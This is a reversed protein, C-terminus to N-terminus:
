PSRPAPGTSRAVVPWVLVPGLCDHLQAKCLGEDDQRKRLASCRDYNQFEYKLTVYPATSSVANASLSIGSVDAPLSAGKSPLWYSALNREGKFVSWVWERPKNWLAGTRLYDFDSSAGYRSALASKLGFFAEKTKTGYPDNEHTVGLGSVACIGTEPTSWAVYGDFERNPTPVNIRFYNPDNGSGALRGGYKSVSDGMKVGFAQAGAVSPLLLGVLLLIMKRM